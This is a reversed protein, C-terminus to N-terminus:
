PNWPFEQHNFNSQNYPHPQQLREKPCINQLKDSKSDEDIYPRSKINVYICGIKNMNEFYTTVYLM